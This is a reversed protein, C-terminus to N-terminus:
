RSPVKELTRAFVVTARAKWKREEFMKLIVDENSSAKNRRRARIGLARCEGAGELSRGLMRLVLGVYM